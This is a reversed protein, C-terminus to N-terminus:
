VATRMESIAKPPCLKLAGSNGLFSGFSFFTFAASASAGASSAVAFFLEALFFAAGLFAALFDGAFFFYGHPSPRMRGDLNKFQSSVVSFKLVTKHCM